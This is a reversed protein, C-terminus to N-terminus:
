AQPPDPPLPSKGAEVSSAQIEPLDYEALGTDPWPINVAAITSWEDSLGGRNVHKFSYLKVFKVPFIRKQEFWDQVFQRLRQAFDKEDPPFYTRAVVYAARKLDLVEYGVGYPHFQWLANYLDPTWDTTAAYHALMAEPSPDDEVNEKLPGIRATQFQFTPDKRLRGYIEFNFLYLGSDKAWKEFWSEVQNRWSNPDPGRHGVYPRTPPLPLPTERNCHITWVFSDTFPIRHEKEAEGPVNRQILERDSFLGPRKSISVRTYYPALMRRLEGEIKEDSPQKTYQWPRVYLEPDDPDLAEYRMGFSIGGAEDNVLKYGRGEVESKIWARVKDMARADIQWAPEHGVLNIGGTPREMLTAAYYSSVFQGKKAISTNAYDPNRAHTMDYFEVIPQLKEPVENGEEDYATGGAPKDWVIQVRFRRGLDNFVEMEVPVSREKSFKQIFAEPDDPDESEGVPRATKAANIALIFNLAEDFSACPTTESERFGAIAIWRHTDWYQRAEPTMVDVPADTMDDYYIEGIFGPPNGKKYVNWHNGESELEIGPHPSSTLREIEGHVNFDEDAELLRNAIM